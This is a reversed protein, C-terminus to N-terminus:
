CDDLTLLRELHRVDGFSEVTWSGDAFRFRNMSANLLRYNRVGSIPLGLAHRYLHDLVGGHAVTIVTEGAHRQALESLCAFLRGGFQRASEGGPVVYDPDGSRYCAYVDPLVAEIESRAIGQLVGLHRERLRADIIVAHGTVAAIREATEVARVLDSTYLAHFRERALRAGLADAQTRGTDNLPIDEHGQMRGDHNWATEGHRILILSMAAGNARSM